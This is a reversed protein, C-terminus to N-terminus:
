IHALHGHLSAKPTLFMEWQTMPRMPPKNHVPQMSGDDEPANASAPETLETEVPKIEADLRVTRCLRIFRCDVHLFTTYLHEGALLSLGRMAEVVQKAALKLRPSAPEEESSDILEVKM